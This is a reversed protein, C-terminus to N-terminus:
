NEKRGNIKQLVTRGIKIGQENGKECDSRYHIGAYIRSNSAEIAAERFSNFTRAPLGFEQETSDIYSVHDGFIESMVEAAAASVTSHGSTYAPFPPTVLLPHWKKDIKEAIFTEPRLRVTRYKMDWCSIFGEFLAVSTLAYSQATTVFDQQGYQSMIRCIAMWHGGPTMKKDQFMLHGKHRSVFPNDDWFMLIEEREDTEKTSISQVTEYVEKAEKWFASRTDESYPVPWEVNCQSSSDLVMTEIKSWHPEVGDAYDPPTPVWLGPKTVVEFREMGRTEKYNDAAIRRSISEAVRDGFDISREFVDRDVLRRREQLLQEAFETMEAKSFVVRLATSYFAKIAATVFDYELNEEPLPMRDFGRLGAVISVSNKNAFRGAEFAALSPYVYIRSAVPPTFIDTVVIDTLKRECQHLVEAEFKDYKIVEKSQCSLLLLGSIFLFSACRM